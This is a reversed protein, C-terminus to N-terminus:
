FFRLPSELIRSITRVMRTEPFYLNLLYWTILTLIVTVFIYSLTKITWKNKIVNILFVITSMGLILVIMSSKAFLLIQILCLLAYSYKEKKSEFFVLVTFLLFYMMQGYYTPEVALSTVGRGGIAVGGRNILFVLFNPALYMQVLAIIGWALITMKVIRTRIGNETKIILYTAFTIVFISLYGFLSRFTIFTVKDLLAVFISFFALVLLLTLKKPFKEKKIIVSKFIILVGLVFAMPQTDTNMFGIYPFFVFIYFLINLLNIKKIKM